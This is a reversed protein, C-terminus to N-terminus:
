KSTSNKSTRGHEALKWLHRLDSPDQRIPILFRLSEWFVIHYRIADASAPEHSAQLPIEEDRKPEVTAANKALVLPWPVFYQPRPGCPLLNQLAKTDPVLSQSSQQYSVGFVQKDHQLTPSVLFSTFSQITKEWPETWTRLMNIHNLGASSTKSILLCCPEHGAVTAAVAVFAVADASAVSTAPLLPVAAHLASVTPDLFYKLAAWDSRHVHCFSHCVWWSYTAAMHGQGGIGNTELNGLPCSELINEDRTRTHETREFLKQGYGWGTRDKQHCTMCPSFHLGLSSRSEGHVDMFWQCGFGDLPCTSCYIHRECGCPMMLGDFETSSLLARAVDCGSFSQPFVNLRPCWVVTTLRLAHWSAGKQVTCRGSWMSHARRYCRRLNTIFPRFLNTWMYQLNLSM